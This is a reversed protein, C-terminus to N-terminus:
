NRDGPPTLSASLGEDDRMGTTVGNPGIMRCNSSARREVVGIM